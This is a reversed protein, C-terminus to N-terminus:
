PASSPTLTQATPATGELASLRDSLTTLRRVIDRRSGDIATIAEENDKVRTALSAELAKATQTTAILQDTLSRQLALLENSRTKLAKVDDILQAQAELAKRLDSAQAAVSKVTAGQAEVSNKLSKLAAQNAEIWERNRKNSVDWLKRIESEWFNIQSQTENETESLAQGTLSLQDEIRALRAEAQARAAQAESLAQQQTALFYGSVSLGLVLVALLLSFFPPVGGGGSRGSDARRPTARRTAIDDRAPAISPLEGLEDRDNM